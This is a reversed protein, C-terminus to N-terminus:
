DLIIYHYIWKWQNVTMKSQVAKWLYPDEVPLIPINVGQKLLSERVLLDKYARSSERKKVNLIRNKIKRNAYTSFDGKEADFTQHAVWLAFLGEQFYDDYPQKIQLERIYFYIMEEFNIAVEYFSMKENVNEIM